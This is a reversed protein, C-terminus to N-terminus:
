GGCDGSWIGRVVGGSWSVTISADRFASGNGGLGPTARGGIQMQHDDSIIVQKPYPGDSLVDSRLCDEDYAVMDVTVTESAPIDADIFTFLTTGDDTMEASLNNWTVIWRTDGDVTLPSASYDWEAIELSAVDEVPELTPTVEDVPDVVPEAEGDACGVMLLAAVALYRIM